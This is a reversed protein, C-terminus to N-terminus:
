PYPVITWLAKLLENNSDPVIFCVRLVSWKWSFDNTDSSLKSSSWHIHQHQLSTRMDLPPAPDRSFIFCTHHCESIMILPWPDINDSRESVGVNASEETMWLHNADLCLTEKGDLGRCQCQGPEVTLFYNIKGGWHFLESAARVQNQDTESFSPPAFRGRGADWLDARMGRVIQFPDYNTNVTELHGYIGERYSLLILPVHKIIAWIEKRM